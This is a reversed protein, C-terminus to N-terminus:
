IIAIPFENEIKRKMKMIIKNSIFISNKKKLKTVNEHLDM